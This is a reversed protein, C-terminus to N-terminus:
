LELITRLFLLIPSRPDSPNKLVLPKMNVLDWKVLLSIRSQSILSNDVKSIIQKWVDEPIPGNGFLQKM